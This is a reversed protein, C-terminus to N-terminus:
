RDHLELHLEEVISIKQLLVPKLIASSGQFGSDNAAATSLHNQALYLKRLMQPTTSKKWDKVGTDFVYTQPL